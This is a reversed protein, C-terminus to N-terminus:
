AAAGKLLSSKQQPRFRYLVNRGVKTRAVEGLGAESFGWVIRHIYTNYIGANEMGIALRIQEPSVPATWGDEMVLPELYRLLRSFHYSRRKPTGCVENLADRATGGAQLEVSM